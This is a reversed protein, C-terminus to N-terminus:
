RPRLTFAFSDRVVHGDKAATTVHVMWAGDPLASPMPASVPGDPKSPDRWLPTLPIAKAGAGVLRVRSVSLEIPESFWLQLKPPLSSLVSDKAPVSKLLRPHRRTGATSAGTVLAVACLALLTRKMAGSPYGRTRVPRWRAAGESGGM